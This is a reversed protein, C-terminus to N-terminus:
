AEEHGAIDALAEPRCRLKAGDRQIAGAAELAALADNVRPRSAGVLLALEGQSMGLTLVVEGADLDLGKLQLAQMLFRAVRVELPHLAIAELQSTTERLRACVFALATKALAPHQAILEDLAAKSLSMAQTKTVATADASRAGGDLVAIEGLVEGPGVHRFSLEKGDPTVVSIRVKGDVILYLHSGPDSRSFILQGADFAIERMRQAIGAHLASELGSFLAAKALLEAIRSQPPPPM